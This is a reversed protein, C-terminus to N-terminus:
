HAVIRVTDDREVKFDSSKNLFNIDINFIHEIGCLCVTYYFFFDSWMSRFLLEAFSFM